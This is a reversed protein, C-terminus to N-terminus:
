FIEISFIKRLGNAYSINLLENGTIGIPTTKTCFHILSERGLVYDNFNIQRNIKRIM